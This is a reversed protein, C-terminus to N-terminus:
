RDRMQTVTRDDVGNLSECDNGNSFADLEHSFFIGKQNQSCQHVTFYYSSFFFYRYASNLSQAKTFQFIIIKSSFYFFDDNEGIDDDQAGDEDDVIGDAGTEQLEDVVEAIINGAREIVASMPPESRKGTVELEIRDLDRALRARLCNGANHEFMCELIGVDDDADVDNETTAECRANLALGLLLFVSAGRIRM